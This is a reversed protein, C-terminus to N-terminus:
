PLISYIKFITINYLRSVKVLSFMSVVSLIGYTFGYPNKTHYTQIFINMKLNSRTTLKARSSNYQYILKKISLRSNCNVLLYHIVLIVFMQEFAVFVNNTKIKIDNVKMIKILTICIYPFTVALYILFLKGFFLNNKTLNVLSKIYIRRYYSFRASSCKQELLKIQFWHNIHFSQIPVVALSFIITHVHFAIISSLTLVGMLFQSQVILLINWWNNLFFDKNELVARFVMTELSIFMTVLLM